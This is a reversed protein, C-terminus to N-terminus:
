RACHNLRHVWAMLAFDGDWGHKYHKEKTLIKITEVVWAKCILAGASQLITNLASHLSRVYVIRRDLGVISHTIPLRPNDPHVRHRWQIRNCSGVWESKTVLTTEITKRLEEIAPIAKLFKTKLRKGEKADKGVIAGLKADGAGYLFGYIFTKANDRTPLGAAKQNATHIDDHLITNIYEGKDFPYLFHGFCRLELGSADIGAQYWGKPVGFLSRCEKGYPSHASPVQAINPNSHTARGTVAGNSNVSGHIRTLGDPSQTCLRLWAQDGEALQSIRKDILLYELIDNTVSLHKASELTEEDVKVAGTETFETPKWGLDMLVKAIDNRSKPNFTKTVYVPYRVGAKIGRKPNDKKYVKDGKYVQWPKFSKTLASSMEDRIQALESYLKTAQALDFVFGNREQKAMIWAIDHELDIATQPYNIALLKEYLKVTVTVDQKCYKLMDESFQSWANEQEGYTGKLEGLRYGYAKLSHSGYLSSPLKNSRMLFIDTDKINSWILRAMVLTDVVFDVPDFKFDRKILKKLVPVDYKIGNHFVLNYDKACYTELAQVYSSLDTYGKYEKTQSDYTWACWFKTVENLLGNTEIDSVLYNPKIVPMPQRRM